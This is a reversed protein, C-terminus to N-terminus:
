LFIKKLLYMEYMMLVLYMLFIFYFIHYGTIFRFFVFFKHIVLFLMGFSTITFKVWFFYNLDYAMLYEMFPNLEEGGHSIIILTLIADTVCFFITLSFIFFVHPEHIDVYLNRCRDGDRRHIKRRRKFISYIFSRYKNQRRDIGDRLCDIETSLTQTQPHAGTVNSHNNITTSMIDPYSVLFNFM